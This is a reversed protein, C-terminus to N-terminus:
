HMDIIYMDLNTTVIVNDPKLLMFFREGHGSFAITVVKAEVGFDYDKYEHFDQVYDPSQVEVRPFVTRLQAVLKDVNENYTNLLALRKSKDITPDTIIKQLDRGVLNKFEISQGFMETGIIEIVEFSKAGDAVELAARLATLFNIQLIHPPGLQEWLARAQPDSPKLTFQKTIFPEQNQEPRPNFRVVFGQSGNGLSEISAYDEGMERLSQELGPVRKPTEVKIWEGIPGLQAFLELCQNASGVSPMIICLSLVFALSLKKM